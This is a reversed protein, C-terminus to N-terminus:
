RCQWWQATGPTAPQPNLWQPPKGVNCQTRCHSLGEDCRRQDKCPRRVCTRHALQCQASCSAATYTDRDTGALKPLSKKLDKLLKSFDRKGKPSDMDLADMSTRITAAQTIATQIGPLTLLERCIAWADVFEKAKLAKESESILTRAKGLLVAGQFADLETRSTVWPAAALQTLLNIALDSQGRLHLWFAARAIGNELIQAPQDQPSAGTTLEFARTTFQTIATTLKEIVAPGLDVDIQTTSRTLLDSLGDAYAVADALYRLRTTQSLDVLKQAGGAKDGQLLSWEAVLFDHNMMVATIEAAAPMSEVLRHVDEFLQRARGEENKALLDRILGAIQTVPEPTLHYLTGGVVQLLTGNPGQTVQTSRANAPSNPLATSVISGSDASFGFTISRAGSLAVQIVGDLMGAAMSTINGIQNLSFKLNGTIIDYGTVEEGNSSQSHLVITGAAYAPATRLQANKKWLHSGEPLKRAEISQSTANWHVLVGDFVETYGNILGTASNPPTAGPLLAVMGIVAGKTPDISALEPNAAGLVWVYVNKGDTEIRDLRKGGIGSAMEWHQRGTTMTLSFISYPPNSSLCVVVDKVRVAGVLPGTEIWDPWINEGTTTSIAILETPTKGERALLISDNDMGIVSITCSAGGMCGMPYTWKPKGTATDLRYLDDSFLILDNNIWWSQRIPAVKSTFEWRVSSLQPDMAQFAQDGVKMVVRDNVWRVDTIPGMTPRFQGTQQYVRGPEAAFLLNPFLGVVVMSWFLHSNIRNM